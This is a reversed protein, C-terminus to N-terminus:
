ASTLRITTDLPAYGLTRVVIRYSAAPLDGFVARGTSDSVMEVGLDPVWVRAGAVIAGSATQQVTVTLAFRPRDGASQALFVRPHGLFCLVVLVVIHLQVSRMLLCYRRTASRDRVAAQPFPKLSASTRLIRTAPKRHRDRAHRGCVGCWPVPVSPGARM